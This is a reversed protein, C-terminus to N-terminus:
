SKKKKNGLDLGVAVPQTHVGLKKQGSKALNALGKFGLNNECSVLKLRHMGKVCRTEMETCARVGLSSRLGSGAKVILSTVKVVGVIM